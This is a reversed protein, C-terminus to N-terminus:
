QGGGFPVTSTQEMADGRFAFVSFVGTEPDGADDLEIDGSAGQFDIDEGNQLAEIAGPLDEWTYEDGPANTIDRLVDRMEAGDTSGAAVAALYCLIVNDFNQSNFPARAPGPADDFLTSFAEGPGAGLTGPATARMGEVVDAGILEALNPFALGDPGFAKEADWEGTRVLAPGVKDFPEPFDIVMIADPDGSVIQQAESNYSPQKLDYVVTEGVSGGKKEWAKTLEDALGTGYSDNRAGINITLGEAGGIGDEIVDALLPGQFTDAPATRFLFDDDELGSLEPSTSAPSITLIEERSAVSEAV